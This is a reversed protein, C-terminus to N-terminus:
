FDGKSKLVELVEKLSLAYPAQYFPIGIEGNLYASAVDKIIIKDLQLISATNMGKCLRNLTDLSLTVVLHPSEVAAFSLGPTSSKLDLSIIRVQGQSDAVNFQYIKRHKAALASLEHATLSEIASTIKAIGDTKAAIIPGTKEAAVALESTTAPAQNHIPAPTAIRATIVAAHEDVNNGLTSSASKGKKGKVLKAGLVSTAKGLCKVASAEIQDGLKARINSLGLSFKSKPKQTNV